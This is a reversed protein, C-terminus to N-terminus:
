WIEARERPEDTTRMSWLQQKPEIKSAPGNACCTNESLDIGKMKKRTAWIKIVKIQNM